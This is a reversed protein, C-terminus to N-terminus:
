KKKIFKPILAVVAIVVVAGVLIFIPLKSSSSSGTAPLGDAAFVTQFIMAGVGLLMLAAMLVAVVRVVLTRKKNM